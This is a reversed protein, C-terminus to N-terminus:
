AKWTFTFLCRPAGAMITSSRQMTLCPTYGRAFPEDRSCSLIHGLEPDLGLDAYTRAYACSTVAFSLVTGTLAVDAIELAEGEQWRHLVTAFHALTPGLPSQRAFAEGVASADAAIATTLVRRAADRGVEHILSDWVHVALRAQATRISLM